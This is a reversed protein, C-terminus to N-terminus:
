DDDFLADASDGLEYHDDQAAIWNALQFEEAIRDLRAKTTSSGHYIVSRKLKMDWIVRGRPVCFYEDRPSKGLKKAVKAWEDVHNLDSDIHRGDHSKSEPPHALAVLCSGNDWWIGIKPRDSM